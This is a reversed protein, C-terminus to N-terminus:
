GKRLVKASVLEHPEFGYRRLYGGNKRRTKERFFVIDVNKESIYRLAERLLRPGLMMSRYQPASYIIDDAALTKSKDRPHQTILVFFYGAIIGGIRATLIHLAGILELAKYRDHDPNLRLIEKHSGVEEWHQEILEKAERYFDDYSLGWELIVQANCAPDSIRPIDLL